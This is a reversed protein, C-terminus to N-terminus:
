ENFCECYDFDIDLTVRVNLHWFIHSCERTDIRKLRYEKEILKRLYPFKNQPAHIFILGPSSTLETDQENPLLLKLHEHSLFRYKETLQILRNTNIEDIYDHAIANHENHRDYSQKKTATM